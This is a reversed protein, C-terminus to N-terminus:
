KNPTAPAAAPTRPSSTVARPNVAFSQRYPTDTNVHKATTLGMRIDMEEKEAAALRAIGAAQTDGQTPPRELEPSPNAPQKAITERVLEIPAKQLLAVMEPSMGPRSAILKSREDTENRQRLEARLKAVENQAQIAARYAAAAAKKDDDSPPEAAAQKDSDDGEAKDDAPKDDAPKDKDGDGDGGGGEDLAALARKAAAANADDGEAAEQLLARAKEYASGAMDTAGNTGGAVRALVTALSGVEDALGVSVAQQGHFVKAQLKAVGEVTLAPRHRAVLEFFVGAMSDVLGQTSALEADTIPQDPHGDSKRAGSTILAVRLGRQANMASVDDRCSLVGISGVLSSQTLTISDCASALAYAASCCDGEVLAHLEKGAADAIARLEDAAEFCGAADGGPSDFRMVITRAATACAARVRELIAPYSDCWFHERHELPGRVDVIVADGQEINEPQGSDDLFFVELFAKPDIALLGRREYAHGRVTM